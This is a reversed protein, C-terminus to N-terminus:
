SDIFLGKEKEKEREGKWKRALVSVMHFVPIDYNSKVKDLSVVHLVIRNRRERRRRSLKMM